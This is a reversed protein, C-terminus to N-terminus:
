AAAHATAGAYIGGGKKGASGASITTTSVNMLARAGDAYLGGGTIGASNGSLTCGTFIGQVHASAVAVSTGVTLTTIGTHGSFGYLGGLANALSGQKTGTMYVAGGENGASNNLFTVGSVLLTSNPLAAIAGGSGGVGAGGTQFAGTATNNSFSVGGGLTCTCSPGCLVAGGVAGWNNNFAGGQVTLSGPVSGCSALQLAGGFGLGNSGPTQLTTSSLLLPSFSASNSTFTVNTLMTPGSALVAGAATVATNAIFQTNSLTMSLLGTLLSSPNAAVAGGPGTGSANNAQFVCNSANLSTVHSSSGPLLLVAAGGKGDAVDSGQVLALSNLTLAAGGGSVYVEFLRVAGGGSLTCLGQVPAPLGAAAACQVGDGQVLLTRTVTMQATVTISATVTITDARAASRGGRSRARPM